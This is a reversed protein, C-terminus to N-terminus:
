PQLYCEIIVRLLRHKTVPTQQDDITFTSILEMAAATFAIKAIFMLSCFVISDIVFIQFLYISVLNFFFYM